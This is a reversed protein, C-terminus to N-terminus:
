VEPEYSITIDVVATYIYTDNTNMIRVHIEDDYEVEITLPYDFTDDEGSVYIETGEPFTFFDEVKEGKHLVFPRVKLEREQGAYFRIRCSEIWGRYKVREKVTVSELPQMEKRIVINEKKM